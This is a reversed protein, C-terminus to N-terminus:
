RQKVGYDLLSQRTSPSVTLIPVHRVGRLRRPARWRRGEHALQHILVVVPADRVWRACGFPRTNVEDFAGPRHQACFGAAARYVTDANGQRVIRIGAVDEEPPLEPAGSTFLTVDHGAGAWRSLVATDRRSCVLIRV